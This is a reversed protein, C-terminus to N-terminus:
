VMQKCEGLASIHKNGSSFARCIWGAILATWVVVDRSLLTDFVDQAEELFGCKAYLDVLISGIFRDTEYGEMAIECHIERGEYIM